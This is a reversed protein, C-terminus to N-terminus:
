STQENKVKKRRTNAMQQHQTAWRVNGPEYHGHPNIRDVTHLSTPCPGIHEYFSLFDDHWEQAVRVGMAGHYKYSKDANENYCRTKMSQWARYEKTCTMGHRRNAGKSASCKRCSKSRGSTLNYSEVEKELGCACKCLWIQKNNAAKRSFSIVTWSNFTKGTLNKM